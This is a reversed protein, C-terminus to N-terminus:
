VVGGEVVRNLHRGMEAARPADRNQAAREVEGAWLKVLRTCTGARQLHDTKASLDLSNEVTSRLLSRNRALMQAQDHPSPGQAGVLASLMAFLLLVTAYRSM